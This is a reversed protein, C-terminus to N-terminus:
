IINCVDRLMDLKTRIAKRNWYIISLFEKLVKWSGVELLLLYELVMKKSYKEDYDYAEDLEWTSVVTSPDPEKGGNNSFYSIVGENKVGQGDRTFSYVYRNDMGLLYNRKFVMYAQLNYHFIHLLKLIMFLRIASWQFFQIIKCNEQHRQGLLVLIAKLSEQIM